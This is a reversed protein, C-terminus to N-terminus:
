CSVELEGHEVEVWLYGRKGKGGVVLDGLGNAVGLIPIIVTIDEEDSLISHDYKEAHVHQNTVRLRDSTKKVM